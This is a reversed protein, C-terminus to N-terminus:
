YWWDYKSIILISKGPAILQQPTCPSIYYNHQFTAIEYLAKWLHKYEVYGQFTCISTQVLLSLFSSAYFIEYQLKATIYGYIYVAYTHLATIM